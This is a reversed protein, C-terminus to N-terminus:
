AVLRALEDVAVELGERLPVVIHFLGLGDGAFMAIGLGQEVTAAVQGVDVGVVGDHAVKGLAVGDICGYM